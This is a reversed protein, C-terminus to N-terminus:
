RREETVCERAGSGFPEVELVTEPLHQMEKLILRKAEGGELMRVSFLGERARGGM